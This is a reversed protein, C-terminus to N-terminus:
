GGAHSVANQVMARLEYLSLVTDNFHGIHEDIDLYDDAPPILEMRGLEEAILRRAQNFQERDKARRMMQQLICGVAVGHDSTSVGAVFHDRWYEELLDYKLMAKLLKKGSTYNRETM